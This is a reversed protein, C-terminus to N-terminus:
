KFLNLTHLFYHRPIKQPQVVCRNIKKLKLQSRDCIDFIILGTHVYFTLLFLM